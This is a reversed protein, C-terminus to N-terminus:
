RFHYVLAPLRQLCSPGLDPRIQIWVRACEPPIGSIKESFTIFFILLCFFAFNTIQIVYLYIKTHQQQNKKLLNFNNIKLLILERKKVKM